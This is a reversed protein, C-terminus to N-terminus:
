RLMMTFDLKVVKPATSRSTGSGIQNIRPRRNRNNFVSENNTRCDDILQDFKSYLKTELWELQQESPSSFSSAM